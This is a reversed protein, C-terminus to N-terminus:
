AAWSGRSLVGDGCDGVIVGELFEGLGVQLAELFGGVFYAEIVFLELTGHLPVNISIVIVNVISGFGELVGYYIGFGGKFLFPSFGEVLVESLGVVCDAGKVILVFEFLEEDFSAELVFGAHCSEELSYASVERLVGEVPTWVTRIGKHGCGAFGLSFDSGEGAVFGKAFGEGVGAIWTIGRSLLAPPFEM